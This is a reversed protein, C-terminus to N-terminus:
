REKLQKLRGKPPRATSRLWEKVTAEDISM